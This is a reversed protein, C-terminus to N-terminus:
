GSSAASALASLCAFPLCAIRRLAAGDLPVGCGCRVQVGFHMRAKQLNMDLCAIKANSVSKPMGQVACCRVAHRPLHHAAASPCLM